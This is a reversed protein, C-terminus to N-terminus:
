SLDAILGHALENTIKLGWEAIIMRKEADGTKALEVTQFPRLFCIEAYAEDLLWADRTRQFRDPVVSITNFDSVYVDAAGIIASVKVASQYFTKTAIGAFGSVVQKNSAGVFLTKPNGGNNWALRVVDKLMTETFARLTGDTRGAGPAPAPAAPNGGGAGFSVNTRVWAGLGATNRAVGTSGVAAPQNSAIIAEMDRKLEKSRKALQYALESKRGAKDVADTTGAVIVDKRVIQTYNGVRTTPSAATFSTLDDGEIFANSTTAAALVDTQWEFFTNSAKGRGINSMIPTDEPSIDYIVNSLDERIGRAQYTQYTNAIIAM